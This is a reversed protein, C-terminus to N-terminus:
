IKKQIWECMQGVNSFKYFESLVFKVNFEKEIAIILEINALSDWDDIDDSNTEYNIEINEDQLVDNFIHNVKKIINELNM